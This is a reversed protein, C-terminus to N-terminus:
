YSCAIRLAGTLERIQVRRNMAALNRKKIWYSWAIILKQQLPENCRYEKILARPSEIINLRTVKLINVKIGGNNVMPGYWNISQDGSATQCQSNTEKVKLIWETVTYAEHWNVKLKLKQEYKKTWHYKKNKAAYIELNIKWVIFQSLSNEKNEWVHRVEM